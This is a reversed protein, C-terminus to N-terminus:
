ALLEELRLCAIEALQDRTVQWETEEDHALRQELLDLLEEASRGKARVLYIRGFRAEYAANGAALRQQVAADAPDVGAQERRSMAASASDDTPREGIRPHDALAADVQERTWTAAEARALELAAPVDAYPRGAVVAGVWEEIRVCPRVLDAAEDDPLSNFAEILV